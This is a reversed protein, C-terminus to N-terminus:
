FTRIRRLCGRRRRDQPYSLYGSVCLGIFILLIQIRRANFFAAPAPMEVEEAPSNM